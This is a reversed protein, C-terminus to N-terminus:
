RSLLQSLASTLTRDIRADDGQDTHVRGAIQLGNIMAHLMGALEASGITSTISGDAKGREILATLTATYRDLNQRALEAIQPDDDGLEVSAALVMCTRRDAADRQQEITDRLMAEVVERGTGEAALFREARGRGTDDYRQLAAQYMAAKNGFTNYLSSRSLGTGSCLDDTSTAAYSSSRFQEIAADVVTETRFGRPRSM